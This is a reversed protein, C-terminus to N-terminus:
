NHRSFLTDKATNHQTATNRCAANWDQPLLSDLRRRFDPLSVLSESGFLRLPRGNYSARLWHDGTARSRLLEFAICSCFPPWKHDWCNLTLLVPVITTDHGVWLSM